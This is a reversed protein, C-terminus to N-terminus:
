EDPDTAPDPQPKNVNKEKYSSSYEILAQMNKMYNQLTAQKASKSLLLKFQTEAVERALPVFGESVSATAYNIITELCREGIVRLIGPAYGDKGEPLKGAESLLYVQKMIDMAKTLEERRADETAFNETTTKVEVPTQVGDVVQMVAVYNNKDLGKENVRRIIENLCIDALALYAHPPIKKAFSQEPDLWDLIEGLSFSDIRKVEKETKKAFEVLTRDYNQPIESWKGASDKYTQSPLNTFDTPM